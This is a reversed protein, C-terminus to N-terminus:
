NNLLSLHVRSIIRIFSTQNVLCHEGDAISYEDHLGVAAVLRSFSSGFTLLLYDSEALLFIDLLVDRITDSNQWGFELHKPEMDLSIIESPFQKKVATKVAKDDM